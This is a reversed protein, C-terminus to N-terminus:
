GKIQKIFKYASFVVPNIVLEHSGIFETVVQEPAFGSKFRTIGQWKDSNFSHGNVGGFDYHTFGSNKADLIAQWQLLYPAMVGRYMDASAGHLYVCVKGFFGMLNAAVIKDDYEALYLKLLGEPAFIEFMKKYYEKPHSNIGDRKATQKVLQWFAEIDLIEQSARIKVGKKKALNINYRTKQKMEALIEDSERGIDIILSCKPQVEKEGKRYDFALVRQENGIRWAPDLRVMFCKEEKALKKIEPMLLELMQSNKSNVVPGRPVYLYSYEFHIELKIVMAAAQINGEEDILALRFIQRDLSKQFDGWLWSQLLGGDAANAAVFSDWQQRLDKDARIINM